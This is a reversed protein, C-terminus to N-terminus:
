SQVNAPLINPFHQVFYKLFEIKFKKYIYIYNENNNIKYIQKININIEYIIM